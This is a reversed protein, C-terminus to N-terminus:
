AMINPDIEFVYSDRAPEQPSSLPCARNPEEGQQCRNAFYGEIFEAGPISQEESAAISNMDNM